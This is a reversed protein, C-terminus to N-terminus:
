DNPLPYRECARRWADEPSCGQNRLDKTLEARVNADDDFPHEQLTKRHRLSEREGWHPLLKSLMEIQHRFIMRRCDQSEVRNTLEYRCALGFTVAR